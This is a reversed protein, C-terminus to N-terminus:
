AAANTEYRLCTPNPRRGNLYNKFTPYPIGLFMAAERASGFRQGTNVAIVTKRQTLKSLLGTNYAHQINEAHTTWELNEVRNDLKNGNKHNVYTRFSPNPIFTLAVLRHIFLTHVEKDKSARVTLYGARDVRSKIIKDKRGPQISKVTGESNIFYHHFGPVPIWEPIPAKM